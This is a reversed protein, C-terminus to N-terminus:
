GPDIVCLVAFATTDTADAFLTPDCAYEWSWDARFRYVGPTAPAVLAQQIHGSSGASGPIDTYPCGVYTNPDGYGWYLQTVCYPCYETRDLHYDFAITVAAGPSTVALAPGGDIGTASLRITNEPGFTLIRGAAPAVVDCVPDCADGLDDEDVDSQRANPTGPCSDDDDPVGDDDADLGPPTPLRPNSAGEPRECTPGLCPNKDAGDGDEPGLASTEFQCAAVIAAACIALARTVRHLRLVPRAM